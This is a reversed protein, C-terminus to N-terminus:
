VEYLNPTLLPHLIEQCAIIASNPIFSTNDQVKVPENTIDPLINQDFFIIDSIDLAGPSPFSSPTHLLNDNLDDLDSANLAEDYYVIRNITGSFAYQDGTVNGEPFRGQDQLIGIGITSSGDPYVHGVGTITAEQVGDLFLRLTGQSPSTTELVLTTVYETNASIATSVEKYGWEVGKRYNWAAHHLEGNEIYICMGRLGGGQEFIVQRTNVNAATEFSIGITRETATTLNISLTDPLTNVNVPSINLLSGAPLDPIIDNSITIDVRATSTLGDPDRVTYTFSDIGLYGSDPAYLITNNANLTLDGHTASGISIVDLTDANPDSDNDLVNLVTDVDKLILFDDNQPTPAINILWDHSMNGHLDQLDTNSLATNYYVIKEISGTFHFTDGYYNSDPFRGQDQMIGIGITTSKSDPYIYGVGTLSSIENGNLYATLEGQGASIAEHLFTTTYRTNAVINSTIEKYGWEIGQRYNWAAHHIKGDQIYVSLGRLGGGQEYIVQRTNIDAGTEFAIGITRQTVTNLNILASDAITNVTVPSLSFVSGDPLDPVIENTLTVSVTASTTLGDPDRVTYTFSDLGLYGNDPEYLITNDGNLTIDGHSGGSISIVDLSDGNPDRDNGLVNFVTDTNVLITFEDNEPRPALNILWDYDMHNHLKLLNASNLAEDYYVIRNITGSFAYQDGIVNAEPFRGQDQLIGIGITSSSDPYVYGVGAISNEHTGNLYLHLSGTSASTTDLLFTTTYRVNTDIDTTIEKYGWEVGKRYNWAAHHLKGDEIYISMGRLGGGQEFLVQRTTIDGSTQFAIGITRDTAVSLNINQADAITNTTITSLALESGPPRLPRGSADTGSAYLLLDDYSYTTDDFKYNEISTLTDIGFSTVLDTLKVTVYDIINILFNEIDTTYVVTDNDNGGNIEDSGASAIFIDNGANGILINDASNGTIKDDGSGGKANEIVVNFAIAINNNMGVSSYYGSNLNLVVNTNMSSADFTDEGGADWIAYGRTANLIYNNDGAAYSMDAGYLDQLAKIDYLMYSSPYYPSTDYAMVSYQSNAEIGSLGDFSHRLGLAHGIEHLLLYYGYNGESPNQSESYFNNIWVDGGKQTSDPYYAWAGVDPTLSAQGFTIQASGLATQTFSVNTLNQIETLVRLTATRMQTNFTTFGQREDDGSVYYSPVSNLFTYNLTLDNWEYGSLLKAAGDPTGSDGYESQTALYARTPTESVTKQQNDSTM